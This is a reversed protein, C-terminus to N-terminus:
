VRTTARTEAFAALPPGTRTRVGTPDASLEVRNTRKVSTTTALPAWIGEVRNLRAVTLPRALTQNTSRASPRFYRALSSLVL